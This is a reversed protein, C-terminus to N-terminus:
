LGDECFVAKKFKNAFVDNALLYKVFKKYEKRNSNYCTINYKDADDNIKHFINTLGEEISDCDVYVQIDRSLSLPEQKYGSDSKIHMNVSIFDYFCITMKMHISEEDMDACIMNTNLVIIRKGGRKIRVEKKIEIM